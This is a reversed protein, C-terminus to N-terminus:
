KMEEISKKFDELSKILFDKYSNIIREIKKENSEEQPDQVVTEKEITIVVDPEKPQEVKEPESKFSKLWDSSNEM